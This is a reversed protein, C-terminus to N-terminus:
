GVAARTRGYGAAAGSRSNGRRHTTTSQTASPPSLSSLVAHHSSDMFGSGFRQLCVHAAWGRKGSGEEGLSLPRRWLVRAIAEQTSRRPPPPPPRTTPRRDQHRRAPPWQKSAEPRAGEAPRLCSPSLDTSLRQPALVEANRHSGVGGNICPDPTGRRDIVPAAAATRGQSGPPLLLGRAFSVSPLSPPPLRRRRQEGSTRTLVVAVTDAPPNAKQKQKNRSTSRAGAHARGRGGTPRGRPGRISGQSPVTALARRPGLRPSPGGAGTSRPWNTTVAAPWARGQKGKRGGAPGCAGKAGRAAGAHSGAAVGDFDM